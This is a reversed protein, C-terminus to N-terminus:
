GGVDVAGRVVAHQEDAEGAAVAHLDVVHRSRLWPQNAADLRALARMRETRGPVLAVHEEAVADGIGDALEIELRQLHDIGVGRGAARVADVDEGAALDQHDRRAPRALEGDDVGFGALHDPLHRDALRGMADPRQVVSRASRRRNPAAASASTAAAANGARAASQPLGTYRVNSVPWM